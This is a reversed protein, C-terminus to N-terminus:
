KWGAQKAIQSLTGTPIDSHGHDAVVVMGTKEPHKFKKHSGRQSVEYWGENRLRKIVQKANLPCRVLWTLWFADAIQRFKDSFQGPTRIQISNWYFKTSNCRFPYHETHRTMGAPVPCDMVDGDLAIVPGESADAGNEHIRGLIHLSAVIRPQQRQPLSRPLSSTKRNVSGLPKSPFANQHRDFWYM